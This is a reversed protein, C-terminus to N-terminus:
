LPRYRRFPSTESRHEISKKVGWVMLKLIIYSVDLDVSSVIKIWLGLVTFTLRQGWSELRPGDCQICLNRGIWRDYQYGM